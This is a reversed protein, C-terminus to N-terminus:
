QFQAKIRIPVLPMVACAKPAPSLWVVVRISARETITASATPASISKRCRGKPSAASLIIFPPSCTASYKKARIHATGAPTNSKASFPQSVPICFAIIGIITAITTFMM